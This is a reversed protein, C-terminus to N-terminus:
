GCLTQVGRNEQIYSDDYLHCRVFHNDRGKINTLRPLERLCIEICQSCRPHFPCGLPVDHPTPVSGPIVTLREGKKKASPITQLLATTYPHMPMEFISKAPASEVAVGAYMVMVDHAMGAVVGLNHSVLIMSMENKEQLSKLLTLIKAQVTVDLATTPEDAILLTPKCVLAMAIMVRQRMGGSLEHPYSEFVRRPEAIGVEAFTNMCIEAASKKDLGKHLILPEAVQNGCTFVPNLSTMPDQFVMSIKQGRIQRMSKEPLTLLDIGNNNNNNSNNNSNNDKNVNINDNFLIKKARIQAPPSPLLRMISMATVSKGCGSEGVIGLTKKHKINLSLGRVAYAPTSAPASAKAATDANFSVHLDEITLINDNENQENEKNM